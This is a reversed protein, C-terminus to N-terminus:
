FLSWYLYSTRCFECHNSSRCYPFVSALTRWFLILRNHSNGNVTVPDSTPFSLTLRDSQLMKDLDGGEVGERERERKSKEKLTPKSMIGSCVRWVWSLAGWGNLIQNDYAWEGSLIRLVISEQLILKCTPSHIYLNILSLAIVYVLM